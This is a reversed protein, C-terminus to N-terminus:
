DARHTGAVLEKAASRDKVVPLRDAPRIAACITYSQAQQRPSEGHSSLARDPQGANGFRDPEAQFVIRTVWGEGRLLAIRLKTPQEGDFAIAQFGQVQLDEVLDRAGGVALGEDTLDEVIEFSEGM